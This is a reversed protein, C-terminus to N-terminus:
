AEVDKDLFANTDSESFADEEADSTSKTVNTLGYYGSLNNQIETNEIFIHGYTSEESNERNSNGDADSGSVDTYYDIFEM